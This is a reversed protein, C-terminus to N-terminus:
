VRASSAAVTRTAAVCLLGAAVLVVLISAGTGVPARGGGEGLLTAVAGCGYTLPNVAMLVQQWAPASDYPFVAGSLFWMPMLLLNMIAHFGATSRMRWAVCLGLATMGIAILGLLLVLGLVAPAGPLPGVLPWFLLMLMGQAWALSAGGLIKGAAIAGRPAPSVIVGQLFGERRDEIVSITSFIATFLMVLLLSGPFFYVLYGPGGGPAVAGGAGGPVFTENLGSGLLVWFVLPTGLAGIVRNPQRLFRVWERVWLVQVPRWAAPWRSV